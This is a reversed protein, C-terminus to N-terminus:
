AAQAKAMRKQAAIAADDWDGCLEANAVHCPDCWEGAGDVETGGCNECRYTDHDWPARQDDWPANPVCVCNMPINLPM